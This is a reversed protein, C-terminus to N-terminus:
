IKSFVEPFIQFSEVAFEDLVHRTELTARESRSRFGALLQLSHFDSAVPKQWHSSRNPIPHWQSHWHSGDPIEQIRCQCLWNTAGLATLRIETSKSLSVTITSAIRRTRNRAFLVFHMLLWPCLLTLPAYLAVRRSSEFEPVQM